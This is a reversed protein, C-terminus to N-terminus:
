FYHVLLDKFNKVFGIISIAIIGIATSAYLLVVLWFLIPQRYREFSFYFSGPANSGRVIGERVSKLVAYIFLFVGLWLGMSFMAIMPYIFFLVTWGILISGWICFGRTFM